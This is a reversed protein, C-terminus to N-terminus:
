SKRPECTLPGKKFFSLKQTENGMHLVSARPDYPQVPRLGLADTDSLNTITVYQVKLKPALIGRATKYVHSEPCLDLKQLPAPKREHLCM